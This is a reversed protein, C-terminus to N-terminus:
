LLESRLDKTLYLCMSYGSLYFATVLVLSDQIQHNILLLQSGWAQCSRRILLSRARHYGWVLLKFDFGMLVNTRGIGALAVFRFKSKQTPKQKSKNQNTIEETLTAQKKGLFRSFM